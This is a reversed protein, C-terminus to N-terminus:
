MIFLNFKIRSIWIVFFFTVISRLIIFAYCFFLNNKIWDYITKLLNLNFANFDLCDIIEFIIIMDNILSITIITKVKFFVLYILLIIYYILIPFRLEVNDFFSLFAYLVNKVILM